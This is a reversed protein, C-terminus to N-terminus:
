KDRAAEQSGSKGPIHDAAPMPPRGPRLARWAVLVGRIRSRPHGARCTFFAGGPRPQTRSLAPDDGAQGFDCVLTDYNPRLFLFAGTTAGGSARQPPRYSSISRRVSQNKNRRETKYILSNGLLGGRGDLVSRDIQM